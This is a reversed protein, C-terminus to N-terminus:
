GLLTALYNVDYLREPINYAIADGVFEAFGTKNNPVLSIDPTAGKEFGTFEKAYREYWGIHTTSSHYVYESNPMYHVSVACEGGGSKEGLLKIGMLQAYYPFANGCSFSCDSELIYFNFDNGFADESTYKEDGNTDVSCISISVVGSPEDYLCVPASNNKSILALLKAMVGIVGGGNCSVDLIINKVNTRKFQQLEFLLGYFTDYKFADSKISGDANLVQEETGYFFSDFSIMATKGDNSVVVQNDGTREKRRESLEENLYQRKIVNEGGMPGAEGEGWANNVSILGTHHDDFVALASSYAQGRLKDNASFLGNYLGHEMYYDKMSYIDYYSKLGYFNEMTFIFCNADYVILYNPITEGTTLSEMESDVSIDRGDNTKFTKAYNEVDWTAYIHNYNYFHYINSSDCFANDLLGLPYYRRGGYSFSKFSCNAFSYTAYNEDRIREYSDDYKTNKSLLSYDKPNSDSKFANYINGATLVAKSFSSIVAYFYLEDGRYITWTSTTGQDEVTSVTDDELYPNFLM